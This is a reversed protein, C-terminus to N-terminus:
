IESLWPPNAGQRSVTVAAVNAAYVLAISLDKISIKELASKSMLGRETLKALFGANFTDGAGVTDEVTVKPVKQHVSQGNALYATAGKEGKTVVVMAKSVGRLKYVQESESLPGTGDDIPNLLWALDDDSVKIIDAIDFIQKLRSRYRQEDSIFSARINPDLIIVKEAAHQLVLACYSDAAPESILSIGGCYLATIETSFKDMTPLDTATISRGATNEDHFTYSAQGNILAIFALTTPRKSRILYSTVVNSAILADSLQQGFLDTSVGSLMGVKIGLRGLGIATNFIAGGVLPLYCISGAISEVPVMDIVTEGCCIIM